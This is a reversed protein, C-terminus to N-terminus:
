IIFATLLDHYLSWLEHGLFDYKRIAAAFGGPVFHCFSLSLLLRGRSELPFSKELGARLTRPSSSALTPLSSKVWNGKGQKNWPLSISAWLLSSVEGLVCFGLLRALVVTSSTYLGSETVWFSYSIAKLTWIQPKWSRTWTRRSWCLYFCGGSKLGWICCSLWANQTNSSVMRQSPLFLSILQGPSKRKSNTSKEM